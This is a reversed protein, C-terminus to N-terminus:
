DKLIESTIIRSFSDSSFRKGKDSNLFTEINDLYEQYESDSVSKIYSYLEENRKFDRRDIFCKKSIHKTVNDAGLYIPVCGAFFADLMKETIYGSVNKINEYCIAFKYQKLVDIKNDVAGKYSPYYDGFYKYMLKKAIPIRNLARMLRIGRFHYENWGVGYLDFEAPHTIEFWKIIEKRESYLEGPYNSEKNTIILCCLKKKKINRIIKRPINFAYHIKYYRINDVLEDDWTFIKKFFRHTSRDLNLPSALPSEMLIVYSKNIDSEIPLQSPIDKYIVIDSEEVSNIDHTCIEYGYKYFEDYLSYYKDFVNDRIHRKTQYRDFLINQRFPKEIVFAIKKM